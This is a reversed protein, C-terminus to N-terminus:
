IHTASILLCNCARECGNNWQALDYIFVRWGTEGRSRRRTGCLRVSCSYSYCFHWHKFAPPVSEPISFHLREIRMGRELEIEETEMGSNSTTCRQCFEDQCVFIM